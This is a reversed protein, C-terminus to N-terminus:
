HYKKKTDFLSSLESIMVDGLENVDTIKIAKDYYRSVDHGIGIALVEIDSKNEIFKVIKKLHKELFDGSNVSLTSDDVPAGDSIVMLIKREEKRKKIRNYAWSIAEGDINEKLLGEKLMLGLNNKAQRWHTDAGKYIIHKLDNLRGPTKPKSSKAWLERSQGGKWNKTTFGLIEVKVSCRELTRSLIDACIAAITIPRGRMSGSNDILLTVVTDKFDLDKEKKFSLSNYPDMIIRPLKSSDLLGEELDFEWARNQKALLQRQLKNALKTIVDQFGILQQDLSVRLKTAEDANELNEAKVIEDFQTTFIKYDLNINDISKKVIQETSKENSEIDSLQEDLNFEDTDFDSDISAQTEQNKNEDKSDENNKDQDDNSPNDQGQDQNEENAQDEESQFIDMEEFIQSFRSAYINQDELNDLLFERHKEISKEFDKEWFNLMKSSLLNLKVKHFNKLMYLEFAETVSVDDKTKLQDRRKKNIIQSYNEHFNKEIGKLMQGGLAEYRIKEAINYLSRSSNNVPLNKKYISADSFRKKLAASDTEARLRIFDSPSNINEVEISNLDNSKNKENNRKDLSFDNSIVKATSKLAIRFKEKLSSDRNSM